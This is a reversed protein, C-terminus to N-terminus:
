PRGALSTRYVLTNAFLGVLHELEPHTRMAAPSGVLVDEQGSHAYLLANFAALLTMFPTAQEQRGLTVVSRALAPSLALWEVAGRFTQMRPRPYDAPLALAPVAGALRAKWYSRLGELAEGSLSQRQWVAFDGYEIPLEPLRPQEGASLADYVIGLEHLLLAKSWGDCAIHHAILVLVHQEPEIRLLRARLM